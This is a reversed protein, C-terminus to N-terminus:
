LLGTTVPPWFCVCMADVCGDDDKDNEMNSKDNDNDDVDDATEDAFEKIKAAVYAAKTQEGSDEDVEPEVEEKDEKGVANNYTFTKPCYMVYAEKLETLTNFVKCFPSLQSTTVGMLEVFPLMLQNAERIINRGEPWLQTSVPLSKKQLDINCPGVFTDKSSQVMMGHQIYDLFQAQYGKLQAHSPSLGGEFMTQM